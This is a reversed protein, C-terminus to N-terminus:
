YREMQIMLLEALVHFIETQKTLSEYYHAYAESESLDPHNCDILTPM